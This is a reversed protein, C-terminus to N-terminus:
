CCVNAPSKSGSIKRSIPLWVSAMLTTALLKGNESKITNVAQADLADGRHLNVLDWAEHKFPVTINLGQGGESFFRQATSAFADLPASLRDYTIDQGTQRAFAAHIQPSKSHDVPNGIVAYHDTM